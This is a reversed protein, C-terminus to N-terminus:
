EGSVDKNEYKSLLILKKKQLEMHHLVTEDYDDTQGGIKSMLIFCELMFFFAFLVGWIVIAAVSKSLLLMLVNLEDIFGFKSSLDDEVSQRLIQLDKQKETRKNRMELIQQDLPPLLSKKPNEVSTTSKEVRTLLRTSTISSVSDKRITELPISRTQSSTQNIMPERSLDEIITKREQEKVALDSDLEQMQFKLEKSKTSYISEVDKQLLSVKMKDIDDKFIIQDTILSGICAMLIAILGRFILKKWTQQGPILILREIQIVVACAILAGLVSGLLDLQIYRQTFSFGVISWIICVIVLASTNRKVTHRTMESCSMVIEYNYHTLFCGLKIWWNKM